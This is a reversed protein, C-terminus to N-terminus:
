KMAVTASEASVKVRVSASRRMVSDSPVVRVQPRGKLRPVDPAIEIIARPKIKMETAHESAERVSEERVFTRVGGTYGHDALWKRRADEFMRINDIPYWPSFSIVRFGVRVQVRADEAGAAGYRTAETTCRMDPSRPGASAGSSWVVGNRAPCGCRDHDVDTAGQTLSCSLVSLCVFAVDRISPM